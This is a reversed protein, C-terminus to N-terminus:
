VVIPQAPLVFNPEPSKPRAFYYILGIVLVVILILIIVMAIIAWTRNGSTKMSPNPHNRSNGLKISPLSGSRSKLEDLNFFEQLSISGTEGYGNLYGAEIGMSRLSKLESPSFGPFKDISDYPVAIFGIKEKNATGGVTIFSFEGGSQRAVVSLGVSKERPSVTPMPCQGPNLACQVCWQGLSGPVIAGESLDSFVENIVSNIRDKQSSDSKDIIANLQQYLRFEHDGLHDLDCRHKKRIERVVKEVDDRSVKLVRAPNESIELSATKTVEVTRLRRHGRSHQRRNNM